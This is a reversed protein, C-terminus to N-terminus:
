RTIEEKKVFEFLKKAQGKEFHNRVPSILKDLYSATANKLDLPHLDGKRFADELEQYNHFALDGGFKKPREVCFEKFARFVIEKCYDLVPNDIEKPKCYAKRIKNEIEGRSDHVFISSSPKSKSMKSAIEQSYKKNSDYTVASDLVKAGELGMLMHHSVVVPKKWRMKVAIERALMNSRRQDIGLQTIDVGLEFIDATQMPPYFYQAVELLEGERRGMISLARTARKVSTNKAVLVVRKWYDIRSCLKSSWVVDVKDFPVGAAKWVELFYEAVKHIKELDGGMKNNIQAHWDAIFLKFRLGAKLLDKLLLARYIGFPLHALGSPEFGDYAIPHSKTELLQRLEGETVIEEGVGKILSLRTEIDM